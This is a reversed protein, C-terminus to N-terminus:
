MHKPILIALGNWRAVRNIGSVWQFYFSGLFALFKHPPVCNEGWDDSTCSVKTIKADAAWILDTNAPVAIWASHYM